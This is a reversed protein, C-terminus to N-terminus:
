VGTLLYRAVCGIAYITVALLMFAFIVLILEVISARGLVADVALFVVGCIMCLTAVLLSLWYFIVGLRATM